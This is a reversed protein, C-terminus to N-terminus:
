RKTLAGILLELEEVQRKLEKVESADGVTKFAQALRAAEDPSIEGMAAADMIATPDPTELEVLRGGSPLTYQLILKIATLDGEQMKERLKGVAESALSQVATLTQKSVANRSGIRRGGGPNGPGFRGNPLRGSETYDGINVPM